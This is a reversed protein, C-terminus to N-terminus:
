RLRTIVVHPAAGGGFRACQGPQLAVVASCVEDDGGNSDLLSALSTVEHAWGDPTQSGPWAIEYDDGPLTTPAYSCADCM